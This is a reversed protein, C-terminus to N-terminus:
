SDSMLIWFTVVSLMVGEIDIGWSAVDTAILIHVEGTRLDELVQERDKQDRNGCIIQCPIKSLGLECSLDYVWVKTGVFIIVKDDPGM